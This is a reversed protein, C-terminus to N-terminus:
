EGKPEKGEGWGFLYEDLIAFVRRAKEAMKARGLKDKHNYLKRADGSAKHGMFYEEVDEGLGGASMMTKWFHRGSYFTIRQGRLEEESLGAREGLARNAKRYITSQNPKGGSSFIYDGEAKGTDKIRKRLAAGAFPHLPVFRVGNETKSRKIDIFQVGNIEVIDRARLKEIEGNRMGTAYILLCLPYSVEDEWPSRFVSGLADLQHCGRALASKAGARLTKLKDFPSDKIVGTMLLQSFVARVSGLYRNVTGPKLGASLLHNQFRAALPLDIEQFSATKNERLWPIFKGTMFHHYVRRTKEGLSRGRNRDNGLYPSGAEYYRELIDYLKGGGVSRKSYYKGLLRERNERAFTEADELINTHTNWKSPVLKGQDRYRVYYLFGFRKSRRKVLNFLKPTKQAASYAIRRRDIDQLATFTEPYKASWDARLAAMRPDENRRALPNNRAWASVSDLSFCPEPSKDPIVPIKDERVLKFLTAPHIDFIGCIQRSTLLEPM